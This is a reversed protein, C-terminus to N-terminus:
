FNRIVALADPFKYSQINICDAYNVGAAKVKILLKKGKPKLTKSKVVSLQDYGGPKNIILKRKM